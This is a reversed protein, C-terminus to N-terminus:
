KKGNKFIRLFKKLFRFQWSIINLRNLKPITNFFKIKIKDSILNNIEFRCAARIDSYLFKEDKFMYFYNNTLHEIFCRPDIKGNILPILTGKFYNINLAHLGIAAKETNGYKHRYNHLDNELQWWKSKVFHSFTRQDYIWFCCYNEIDNILFEQDDIKLIKDFKKSLHISYKSNDEHNNEYILFGLNIKKKNFFNNYEKWYEFNSKTFKIDHELYLFYNYSNLYQSMDKRTQWTLYGKGLDSKDIEHKIVKASLDKNDLFNNHTHVFIDVQSSLGKLNNINEELYDYRTLKRFGEPKEPEPNYFPIHICISM